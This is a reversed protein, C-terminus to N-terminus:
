EDDIVTRARERIQQANTPRIRWEEAEDGWHHTIEVRARDRDLWYLIGQCPGRPDDLEGRVQRFLDLTQSGAKAVGSWDWGDGTYVFGSASTAGEDFTVSVFLHEWDGKASAERLLEATLRDVTTDRRRRIRM